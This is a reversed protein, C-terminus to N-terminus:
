FTMWVVPGISSVRCDMYKPISFQPQTIPLPSHIKSYNEEPLAITNPRRLNNCAIEIRIASSMVSSFQKYTPILSYKTNQSRTFLPTCQATHVVDDMQCQCNTKEKKKKKRKTTKMPLWLFFPQRRACISQNCEEQLINKASLIFM